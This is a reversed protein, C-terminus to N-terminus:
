AAGVIKFTRVTSTVTVKRAIEPHENKLAKTDVRERTTTTWTAVVDRGITATSADGMATKIEHEIQRMRDEIPGVKARLERYEAILDRKRALSVKDAPAPATAATTKTPM